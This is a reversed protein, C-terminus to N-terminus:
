LYKSIQKIFFDFDEKTLEQKAESVLDKIIASDGNALRASRIYEKVNLRHEWVDIEVNHNM